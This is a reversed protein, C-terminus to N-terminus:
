LPLVVKKGSWARWILYVWVLLLIVISVGVLSLLVTSLAPFGFAIVLISLYIVAAGCSFFISQWAHFRVVPNDRYSDLSLFLAGSVPGFMYALASASQDPLLDSQAANRTQSVVRPPPGAATGCQSCFKATM